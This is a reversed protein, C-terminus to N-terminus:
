RPRDCGPPQRLRLQLLPGRKSQHAPERESVTRSAVARSQAPRSSRRRASASTGSAIRRSTSRIMPASRAPTAVPTEIRPSASVPAPDTAAAEPRVDAPLAEATDIVTALSDRNAMMVERALTSDQALVDGVPKSDEACGALAAATGLTLALTRLATNMLPGDPQPTPGLYVDTKSLHRETPVFFRGGTLSPREIRSLRRDTAPISDRSIAGCRRGHMEFQPLHVRARWLPTLASLRM